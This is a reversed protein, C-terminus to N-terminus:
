NSKRVFRIGDEDFVEVKNQQELIRVLDHSEALALVISNMDYEGYLKRSLSYISMPEIKLFEECEDLKRSYDLELDKIRKLLNPIVDRHGPFAIYGDLSKMRNLSEFYVLMSLRSSDDFDLSPNSSIDGLIHDGSFVVKEDHSVICMSGRSHGPTWIIELQGVGSDFQSADTTSIASPCSESYDKFLRLLYDKSIFQSVESPTGNEHIVRLYADMRNELYGEYDAIYKSDDEHIYVQANGAQRIAEANGVHDVHGHTLILQEIDHLQVGISSLGAKLVGMSKESKPGTDILTLPSGEILYSNVRGVPFPTPIQIRHIGPFVETM